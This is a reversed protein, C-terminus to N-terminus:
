KNNEELSEKAKNYTGEMDELLWPYLACIHEYMKIAVLRIERQARPSLREHLFHRIQRLNFTFFMRTTTAIPLCARADEKKIGLELMKSYANSAAKVAKEFLKKAEPNREVGIPMVYEFPDMTVYRMSECTYSAVRHRLIQTACARSVNSLEFNVEVHEIISEHGMKILNKIFQERTGPKEKDHSRYATRTARNIIELAGEPAYVVTLKPSEM